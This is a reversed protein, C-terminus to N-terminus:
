CVSAGRRLASLRWCCKAMHDRRCHEPLIQCSQRLLDFILDSSQALIEDM